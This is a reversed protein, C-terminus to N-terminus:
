VTTKWFLSMEFKKWSISIRQPVQDFNNLMSDNSYNPIVNGKQKAPRAIDLLSVKMDTHHSADSADYSYSDILDFDIKFNDERIFLEV